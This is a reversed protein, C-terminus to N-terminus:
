RALPGALSWLASASAAVTYREAVRRRGAEGQARRLQPDAELRSLAASLAAVDGEPVVEGAGSGAMVWPIEGSAYAVIPVGCAMAEVLVRGFQEAWTATAKSPVAVADLKAYQAAMALHDTGSVVVSDPAREAVERLPGDGIFRLRCPAGMADRAAILDTIGKEEVLRGCLGVTFVDQDEHPVEPWSPVAHAVFGVEGRAGWSRALQAARESRAAVFAAHRLVYGRWWRVPLPMTRELNEALQVGYPVGARRCALAWQLGALSFPEQEIFVVGPRLKRLHRGVRARYLHRQQRGEGLVPLPHLRGELGAIPQPAFGGPEYPDRWHSPVVLQLEVGRALLDAYVEQNVPRVCPHSVVLLTTAPSTAPM